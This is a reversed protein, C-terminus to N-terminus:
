VSLSLIIATGRMTWHAAGKDTPVRVYMVFNSSHGTTALVGRRETTKYVPCNYHAFDKFQSTLTPVLLLVPVHEFLVKPQPEDLMLHENMRAGEFYPGHVYAGDQPRVKPATALFEFDFDVTDIPIQYKRAYNQLTGTMFAQTFFFSPMDFITPVGKDVWAQFFALRDMLDAIYSALPKLSPFSKKLWMAPILNSFCSKAVAELDTSMVVLGKLAKLVDRLSSRIAGILKNFRTLEQALVTNMSEDYLVPYKKAVAEIDYNAPLKALIDNALDTVLQEFGAASGGGGGGGGGADLSAGTTLITSLLASTENMDKTIDANEHLGFVEPAPLLPLTRIFAITEDASGVADSPVYYTGSSSLPQNTGLVEPAYVLDMAANLLRRDKDDTVRGGYNCEATCYKLALFPTEAYETVFLSLQRVSIRLDSENFEYPINWGLPGYKRREQLWAHFFCLSFLLKTFPERKPCAHFFEGDSIPDTLYSSLMNARLGKPPENTMKVGNQLVLVPFAPSPYSTLWLRFSAHPDASEFGEVIRELATMWSVFLHCNQLVVWFGKSAGSAVLREAHPGQGQGLSVSEIATKTSEAFRILANMPDVGPSLVFVLPITPSSDRFSGALDFPPPEVFRAGLEASVFDIIAPILKDPRIAKLVLLRAFADLKDSWPVPLAVLLADPDISDYVARWADPDAAVADALGAFAPLQSLTVFDTWSKATLWAPAPNPPALSVDLLIGGVVLYKWEAHNLKHYGEMLKVCLLLSFVLKDKEFLSRCVNNYLFLQFYTNLKEMRADLASDPESDAISRAFLDVFWNLSYQYMPDVTALDSICFFLLSTRYAVPRYGERAEDIKVETELAVRQKAEIENSLKKADDLIQIASADELISGGASGLVELIKDEIEKLQKRNNNGEVVLSNKVEELDPREKAVVLGLLQDELGERTIMFNLLTVKVQLEPMYHPNRLKTTVYFRFDNSYEITADGLRICLVGGQKFTQKVLLPELAPDLEEGVNELLVPKGFQIANELTRLYTAQTLKIVHMGSESEMNRVWKNAQGQPDIMLPWRRASTTIIGNDCSFADTPLGHANWARIAVPEGLTEQFNFRESRPIRHETCQKMWADTTRQRYTVTFPGLYAIMGSSVLVDGTLNTYRPGLLAAVETWRVQEGGLGSLLKEARELKTNCDDYKDELNKKETSLQALKAKMAGLKDMVEALEAQKSQLSAMAEAYEGEAIKLKEKKPAVVKAIRDYVELALIWKCMGEAAASAKAVREPTFEEMPKYKDRIAKMVSPKINDKDYTKLSDLFGKSDNLLAKGPGWYDDRMKQTEADKVKAPKIEKMVCVAEMVLKVGSPPNAMSRVLDIDAKKLTDLAAISANLAPIAEALDAECEDKMAKAQAAVQSTAREEAQVVERKPEVVDRVEKDIVVQMEETQAKATVLQPKLETLEDQMKNVALGAEELQKLGNDYRTRLQAVERRKASLLSKFTQILELYSTPTVYVNRKESALFRAALEMSGTHFVKCMHIVGPRADGDLEVDELFKHAVADLADQPWARFWDITCCNVLSPFMRLRNRFADGIPSMALVVHLYKRAQEIFFAYLTGVSSDGERGLERATARIAECIAAKEDNAFLNPVEGANLLGNIDELYAEEKIQTDAFLFITGKRELGAQRLVLKIDERWEVMSYTKSVEIQKIGMDAIYGALRTLSQRGSGGIGVLLANGRPMKLVRSIRAIHEIAFLFLVLNMPKPTVSNYEDLLASMRPQLAHVDEVLRYARVKAKPDEFDCYMLHRVDDDGLDERPKHAIRGFVKPASLDFHAKLLGKAMGLFWTRDADDTLRDYFVRLLEHLWVTILENPAAYDEKRTLLVGQVVRSFDRLNFTYHSKTPTPLLNDVAAKYAGMTAAIVSASRTRFSSDFGSRDLWWDLITQFIRVMSADDFETFAIVNFHRMYRGTIPNRGGGPPGMAGIFTLDVLQRFTNEKLDYWGGHDMWQRLLEIPPQAGFTELVPMNLDDVFVAMKRGSPPGYVGKRRKDVKSDIIDQTQNASTQASFNVFLAAYKDASLGHLLKQQVYVSKGTGTPGILLTAKGHTVLAELLASYRVTDITPVIINAFEADDAIRMDDRTIAETWLTWRGKAKSFAYDYVSAEGDPLMASLKAASGFTGDVKDYPKPPKGACLQRFFVNFAARSPADLVAAVGWVLAFLFLSEVWVAAEKVPIERMVEGDVPEQFEDALADFLKMLAAVRTIEDTDQIGVTVLSRGEKLVWRNVAPVLWGFLNRLTDRYPHLKPPLQNLWSDMLPRWTMSQPELYVMGCRSVTAPSAVALDQVEFMMTMPASMAIIEGSMLCLKKNDDLVTNMNEIWIADVPGDFVVWQRDPVGHMTEQQAAARYTVALVGDSWEHTVPDFQGYLQGMTIAKPNLVHAHTRKEGNLDNDCLDTLAAMLVKYAATKGSFSYGVLMLGHRVIIMEYLQCIKTFFPETLQLNLRECNSTCFRFLNEYDSPPLKISPFLDSTIGEFLPIDHSLFKPLNVDIISRLMLINEDEDAFQRKLNGAARLVAMVARMGYDYHDQSSLQESCLKYTQVIKRALVRAEMYGNSYLLIEGILAYDPVMMACSRFLAKLNDPLEARGAYGPNMTIFVSASMRLPLQTGEFLFSKLMKAKARQITLIQQAIVSLVEVNIRNFEDFCAWAGSAALGKFFKAMALYDLGDSCNFVVCQIGVAKALDKTTETKGTGAPGEPAGGLDLQLASMLTRYCRDTLPTVVLRGQVGLYEYGYPLSASIMKCRIGAEEQAYRLQATWEFANVESVAAEAIAVTTDRAHVDMVILPSVVLRQLKDMKGRVLEVIKDLDANLKDVYAGLAGALIAEEVESTWFLGTTTLVAQGPWALVWEHRASEKYAVVSEEIVRRTNNFMFTEVEVLWQEVMSSPKITAGVFPVTENESSIMGAIEGGETFVLKAIGEFCKKLHPQVRKPDKTEALIELLEDNSLFFFRPFFLRKMELYENLGRQVAELLEHQRRYSELLGPIDAVALVNVNAVVKRMMERWMGDQEKFLKGEKPMQRMIDESGFIPELYQWVGQVKLWIDIADQILVLKTAWASTRAEHPGIFTSGVMTQAKVIHDDLLQQVEDVGGIIHTGTDRWEKVALELPAWEAYMKDLARELSYEKSAADSIETLRELHRELGMELVTQLSTADTPTFAYGLVNSVAQWHRERMGANCVVAIVPLKGKFEDIQAKIAEAVKRPRSLDVSEAASAGEEPEFEKLCKFNTRWMHMADREVAEPDLSRMSGHLWMHSQKQFDQANRWLTTYPALLAPVHELQVFHTRAFGLLEEEANLQEAREKAAAVDALLKNLTAVNESVRALEGYSQFAEAIAVYEDLEEVFKDKRAALEDEARSREDKLRKHCDDLLPKIRSPWLWTSGVLKLEDDNFHYAHEVLFTLQKRATNLEKNLEVLTERSEHVFKELEVMEDDTSPHVMLRASMEQYQHCIAADRAAFKAGVSATLSLVLEQARNAMRQKVASANIAVLSFRVEDPAHEGVETAAKAFRQIESTHESLSHDAKNFDDVRKETEASLLYQHPAYRRLMEGTAEMNAEVLAHVDAKAEAILEDDLTCIVLLTGASTRQRLEAEIRPLTNMMAVFHDLITLLTKTLSGASPNFKCGEGEVLMKITFLARAGKPGEATRRDDAPMFQQLFAVYTRVSKTLLSRLQNFMLASVASLLADSEGGSGGGPPAGPASPAPAGDVGHAAAAAAADKRFIDVVAPLWKKKLTHVVKECHSHQAEKFREVELPTVPPLATLNCLLLHSYKDWLHLMELMGSHNVVLGREVAEYGAIVDEHWQGLALSHASKSAACAAVSPDQSPHFIAREFARPPQTIQVRRRERPDKLVYDLTATKVANYYGARVEELLEGVLEDVREQSVNVLELPVQELAHDAWRSNFEALSSVDVGGDVYGGFRHELLEPDVINATRLTGKFVEEEAEAAARRQRELVEFASGDLAGRPSARERPAVLPKCALGTAWGRRNVDPRLPSPGALAAARAAELQSEDMTSLSARNFAGIRDSPTMFRRSATFTTAQTWQTNDLLVPYETVEPAATVRPQRRFPSTPADAPPTPVPM